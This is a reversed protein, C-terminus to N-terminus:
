KKKGKIKYIKEKNNKDITPDCFLYGNGEEIRGGYLSWEIGANMMLEIASWFKDHSVDDCFYVPCQSVKNYSQVFDACICGGTETDKRYYGSYLEVRIQPRCGFFVICADEFDLENDFKIFGKSELFEIWAFRTKFKDYKDKM